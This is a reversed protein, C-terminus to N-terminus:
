SDRSSADCASDWAFSPMCAHYGSQRSVYPQLRAHQSSICLSSLCPYVCAHQHETAPNLTTVGVLSVENQQIKSEIM